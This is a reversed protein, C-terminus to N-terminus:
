RIGLVVKWLPRKERTVSSKAANPAEAPVNNAQGIPAREPPEPPTAADTPAATLRRPAIELAKRLAARLEASNRNADELQSKLFDSQQRERDAEARASDLQVRLLEVEHNLKSRDSNQFNQSVALPIIHAREETVDDRRDRQADSDDRQKADRADGDDRQATAHTASQTAGNILSAADVEIREGRPTEVRRSHYKDKECRRQIARPSVGELEAAQAVTLWQTASDTAHTADRADDITAHTASDTASPTATFDDPSPM